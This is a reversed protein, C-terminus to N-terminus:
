LVAESDINIFSKLVPLPVLIALSGPQVLLTEKLILTFVIYHSKLPSFLGPIQNGVSDATKMCQRIGFITMANMCPIM